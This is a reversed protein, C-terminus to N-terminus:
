EIGYRKKYELMDFYNWQRGPAPIIGRLKINLMNIVNDGPINRLLSVSIGFLYRIERQKQEEETFALFPFKSNAASFDLYPLPAGKNLVVNVNHALFIIPTGDPGIQEIGTINLVKM